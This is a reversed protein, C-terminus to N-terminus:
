HLLIALKNCFDFGELVDMVVEDLSAHLLIPRVRFEVKNLAVIVGVVSGLLDMLDKHLVSEMRDSVVALSALHGEWM